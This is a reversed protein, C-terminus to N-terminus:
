LPKRARVAHGITHTQERDLKDLAYLLPPMVALNWFKLAQRPLWTLANLIPYAQYFAPAHFYCLQERLLMFYGGMPRIELVELGAQECLHRLGYRTYRYFDYPQQHEPASFPTTLFIHGGPKLVRAMERLAQQPHSLHELVQISIIADVSDSELPIERNLDAELQIGSFDWSADGVKADLGIYQCEPFHVAWKGEGAGADLLVDGPKLVARVEGLFWDWDLGVRYWRKIRGSISM